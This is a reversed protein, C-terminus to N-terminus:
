LVYSRRVLVGDSLMSPGAMVAPGRPPARLEPPFGWWREVAALEVAEDGRVHLV